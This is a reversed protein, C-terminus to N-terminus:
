KKHSYSSAYCAGKWLQECTGLSKFLKCTETVRLLSVPDLFSLMLELLHNPLALLTCEETAPPEGITAM